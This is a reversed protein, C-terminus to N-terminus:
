RGMYDMAALVIALAQLEGARDPVGSQVAHLRPEPAGTTNPPSHKVAADALPMKVIANTSHNAIM